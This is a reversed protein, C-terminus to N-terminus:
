HAVTKVRGVGGGATSRLRAAVPSASVPSPLMGGTFRVRSNM